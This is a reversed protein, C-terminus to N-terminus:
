YSLVYCAQESRDQPLVASSTSEICRSTHFYDHPPLIARVLGERVPRAQEASGGLPQVTLHKHRGWETTSLKRCRDRGQPQSIAAPAGVLAEVSTPSTFPRLSDRTPLKHRCRDALKHKCSCKRGLAKKTGTPFNAPFSLAQSTTERSALRPRLPGYHHAITGPRMRSTAM